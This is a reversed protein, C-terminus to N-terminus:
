TGGVYKMDLMQKKQCQRIMPYNQSALTTNVGMNGGGGDELTWKWWPLNTSLQFFFNGASCKGKPSQKWFNLGRLHSLTSSCPFPESPFRLRRPSPLPDLNRWGSPGPCCGPSTALGWRLSPNGAEGVVWIVAPQCTLKHAVPVSPILYVSVTSAKATVLSSGVSCPRDLTM